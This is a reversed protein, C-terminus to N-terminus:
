LNLELDLIVNKKFLQKLALSLIIPLFNMHNEEFFYDGQVHVDKGLDDRDEDAHLRIGALAQTDGFVVESYHAAQLYKRGQGGL